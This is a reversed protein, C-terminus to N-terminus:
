AKFDTAIVTAPRWHEMKTLRLGTVVNSSAESVARPRRPQLEAEPRAAACHSGRIEYDCLTERSKAVM